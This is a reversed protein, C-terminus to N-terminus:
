KRGIVKAFAGFGRGWQWCIARHYPLDVQRSAAMKYRRRNYFHFKSVRRFMLALRIIGSPVLPIKEGSTNRLDLHISHFFSKSLPRFQLNRFTQYIMYQGTTISNGAKLESIFRFCRLLPTKTDGVINCEILDKYVMLAHIRVIDYAFEQKQHRKRRLM